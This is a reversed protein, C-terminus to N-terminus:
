SRRPPENENPDYEIRNLGALSDFQIINELESDAVGRNQLENTIEVLDEPHGSESRKKLELKLQETLYSKFDIQSTEQNDKSKFKFKFTGNDTKTYLKFGQQLCIGFEKELLAKLKDEIRHLLKKESAPNGEYKFELCSSKIIRQLTLWERTTAARCGLNQYSFTKPKKGWEQIMIDIDNECWIKLSSILDEPSLSENKLESRKEAFLFLPAEDIKEAYSRLNQRKLILRNWDFLRRQLTGIPFQEMFDQYIFNQGGLPYHAILRGDRISEVLMRKIPQFHNNSHKCEADDNPDVEIWLYGADWIYFNSVGDWRKFLQLKEQDM